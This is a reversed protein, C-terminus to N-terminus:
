GNGTGSPNRRLGRVVRRAGSMLRPGLISELGISVVGLNGLWTPDNLLGLPISRRVASLNGERYNEFAVAIHTHALAKKRFRQLSRAANPLNSFVKDAYAAPDGTLPGMAWNVVYQVFQPAADVLYGPNLDVAQALHLQAQALEDRAYDSLAWELYAKDLLEPQRSLLHTAHPPLHAFTKELVKVNDAFYRGRRRLADTLTESHRRFHALPAALYAVDYRQALRLWLDWDAAQPLELDLIGVEEYCKRRCLVTGAWIHCGELLAEFESLGDCIYDKSLRIRKSDNRGESWLGHVQGKDDIMYTNAYVLGVCPNHDLLAAERELLQPLYIDDGSALHVYEGKALQIGQNGTRNAGWNETHRIVQVNNLGRYDNLIRDTGDPSCDDIVILEWDQLTQVLISDISARLFPAQKYTSLVVTVKPTRSIKM